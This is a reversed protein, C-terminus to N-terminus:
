VHLHVNCTTDTYSHINQQNQIHLILVSKDKGPRYKSSIECSVPLYQKPTSSVNFPNSIPATSVNITHSFKSMVRYTSLFWEVSPINLEHCHITVNFIYIARIWTIIERGSQWPTINNKDQREMSKDTGCITSRLWQLSYKSVQHIALVGHTVTWIKLLPICLSSDILKM